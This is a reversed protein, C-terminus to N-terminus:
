LFAFFTMLSFYKNLNTSRYKYGYISFLLIIFASILLVVGYLSFQLNM